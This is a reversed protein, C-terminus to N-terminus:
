GGQEITYPRIRNLNMLTHKYASRFILGVHLRKRM